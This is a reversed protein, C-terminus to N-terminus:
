GCVYVHDGLVPLEVENSTQHLRVVGYPFAVLAKCGWAAPSLRVLFISLTLLGRRTKTVTVVHQRLWSPFVSTPWIGHM